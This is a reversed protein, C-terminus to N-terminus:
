PQDYGTQPTANNVSEISKNVLFTAISYAALTIILGVIAMQIKAKADDIYASDGDANIYKTGAWIIIVVFITGLLAVVGKIILGALIRPDGSVAGMNALGSSEGGANLQKSTLDGSLQALTMGPQFLLSILAVLLIIKKFMNMLAGVRVRRIYM